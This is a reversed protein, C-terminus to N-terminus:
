HNDHSGLKVEGLAAYWFLHCELHELWKNQAFKDNSTDRRVYLIGLIYELSSCGLNKIDEFFNRFIVWHEEVARWRKM